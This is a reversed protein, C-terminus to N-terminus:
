RIVSNGMPSAVRRVNNMFQTSEEQVLRVDNADTRVEARFRHMGGGNAEAFVQLSLTQGAEASPIPEFLLQGPIVRFEHGEARTPEIGESFQAIVAVNQAAKSGRNTLTLEYLVEAGVPAPAIPDSVTLKLDAIAQVM